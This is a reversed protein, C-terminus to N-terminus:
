IVIIQMLMAAFTYSDSTDELNITEQKYNASKPKLLVNVSPVGSVVHHPEGGYAAGSTNWPRSYSPGLVSMQLKPTTRYTRTHPASGKSPAVRCASLLMTTEPRNRIGYKIDCPLGAVMWYRNLLVNLRTEIAKTVCFTLVQDTMHQNNIWLTPIRKILYRSVSPHGVIRADKVVGLLWDSSLRQIQVWENHRM